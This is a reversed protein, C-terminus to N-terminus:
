LRVDRVYSPKEAMRSSRDDRVTAPRNSGSPPFAGNFQVAAARASHPKYPTQYPLCGSNRSLYSRAREAPPTPLLGRELPDTRAERGHM